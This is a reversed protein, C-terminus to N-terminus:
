RISLEARVLALGMGGVLGVSWSFLWIAVCFGGDRGAAVWRCCPPGDVRGWGRRRNQRRVGSWVCGVWPRAGERGEASECRRLGEGLCAVARRLRGFGDEGIAESAGGSVAARHVRHDQVAGLAVGVGETTRVTHMSATCATSLHIRIIM